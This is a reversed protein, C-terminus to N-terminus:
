SSAPGPGRCPSPASRTRWTLTVATGPAVEAFRRAGDRTTILAGDIATIVDGERLRGASPGDDRVGEVRPESRFTWRRVVVVRGDTSHTRGNYVCDCDLSVIGLDGIRPTDGACPEQRGASAHSAPLLWLALLAATLSRRATGSVGAREKGRGLRM